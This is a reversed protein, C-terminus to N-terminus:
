LIKIAVNQEEPRASIPKDDGFPSGGFGAGDEECDLSEADAEGISQNVSEKKEDDAGAPSVAEDPMQATIENPDVANVSLMGPDSFGDNDM